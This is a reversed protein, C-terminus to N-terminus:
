YRRVLNECHTVGVELITANQEKFFIGLHRNQRNNGETNKYRYDHFVKKEIRFYSEVIRETANM